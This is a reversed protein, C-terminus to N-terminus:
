LTPLDLRKMAAAVALSIDRRAQRRGRALTVHPVLPKRDFAVGARSLEDSVSAHLAQMEPPTRDIGAWVVSLAHPPGFSGIRGLRLDFPSIGTGAAELAASVTPVSETRQYGLFVLTIHM